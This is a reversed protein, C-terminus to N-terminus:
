RRLAEARLAIILPDPVWYQGFRYGIMPDDPKTPANMMRHLLASAQDHDGSARVARALAMHASQGSPVAAIAEELLARANEFHGMRARVEGLFLHALFTLRADLDKRGAIPELRTAAAEDKNELMDIHALRIQSEADAADLRIARELARRATALDAARIGKARVVSPTPDVHVAFPNDDYQSAV